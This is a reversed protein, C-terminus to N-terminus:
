HVVGGSGEVAGEMSAEIGVRKLDEADLLYGGGVEFDELARGVVPRMIYIGVGVESRVGGRKGGRGGM